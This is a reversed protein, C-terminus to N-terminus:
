QKLLHHTKHKVVQILLLLSTLVVVADAEDDEGGHDHDVDSHDGGAPLLLKQHPVDIGNIFDTGPLEIQLQYYIRLDLLKVM